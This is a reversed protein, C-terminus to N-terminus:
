MSRVALELAKTPGLVGRACVPHTRRARERRLERGLDRTKRPNRAPGTPAAVLVLQQKTGEVGLRRRDRAIQFPGPPTAGESPPGLPAEAIGPVEAAAIAVRVRPQVVQKRSRHSAM